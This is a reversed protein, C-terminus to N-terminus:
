TAKSLYNKVGSAIDRFAIDCDISRLSSLDAQTFSQYHNHLKEPFPIYEIEGHKHWALIARAMTNFSDARGTGINYIGSRGQKQWFWINTNVVDEVFVFDRLQEGDSYGDCGSFLKIKGDQLIQNNARWIVSAMKDKHQERPGYVNFYRLGVAQSKLSPLFRRVYQDFLLKSYGYINLPKENDPQESFNKSNGYVAASSAYIFPIHKKLCYHFLKKSYEYNNRMMYAGDWETTDSCAGQHFIAEIKEKGLTENRVCDLFDEKDQYDLIKCDVLNKFKTGDALNDVVLINNNGIKNLGLVLNSGIFGAGGTVIIM